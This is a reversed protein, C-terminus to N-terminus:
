GRSSSIVERNVDFAAAKRHAVDMERLAVAFDGEAARNFHGTVEVQADAEDLAAHLFVPDHIGDELGARDLRVVIAVEDEFANGHVFFALM